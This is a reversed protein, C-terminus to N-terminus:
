VTFLDREGLYIFIESWLCVFLFFPFLLLVEGSAATATKATAVCVAKNRAAAAQWSGARQLTMELQQNLSMPAPVVPQGGARGARGAAARGTGPRKWGAARHGM